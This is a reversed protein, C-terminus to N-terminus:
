KQDEEKNKADGEDLNHLKIALDERFPVPEGNLLDPLTSKSFWSFGGAELIFAMDEVDHKLLGSEDPRPIHALEHMLVWQKQPLTWGGYESAYVEIV